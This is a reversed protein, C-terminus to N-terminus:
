GGHHILHLFKHIAVTSGRAEALVRRLRVPKSRTLKAEQAIIPWAKTGRCRATEWEAGHSRTKFGIGRLPAAAWGKDKRRGPVASRGGAQACPSSKASWGGAGDERPLLSTYTILGTILQM